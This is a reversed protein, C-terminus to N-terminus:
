LSQSEIVLLGVTSLFMNCCSLEVNDLSTHSATNEILSTETLNVNTKNGSHSHRSSRFDFKCSSHGHMHHTTKVIINRKSSSVLM